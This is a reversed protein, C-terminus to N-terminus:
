GGRSRTSSQDPERPSVKGEVPDSVLAEPDIVAGTIPIQVCAKEIITAHAYGLV